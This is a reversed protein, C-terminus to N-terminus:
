TPSMRQRVLCTLAATFAPQDGASRPCDLHARLDGGLWAPLTELTLTPREFRVGLAMRRLGVALAIAAIGPLLGGVLVKAVLPAADRTSWLSWSGAGAAACWVAAVVLLGRPDRRADAAAQGEAWDLRWRWPEDPYQGRVRELKWAHAYGNAALALMATGLIALAGGAAALVAPPM